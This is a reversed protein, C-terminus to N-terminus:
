LRIDPARRSEWSGQIHAFMERRAAPADGQGIADFIRQHASLTVQRADDPGVGHFRASESARNFLTRAISPALRDGSMAMVAAHFRQDAADFREHDDLADQMEDLVGRLEALQGATALAAADEAMTSELGARVRTLEDLIQLAGDHEILASLVVPDLLNWETPDTVRTGFGQAVTVLGKEDLRKMSERIITRSVGFQATLQAEPPLLDGPALAGTVIVDTLQKVVAVGLRAAPATVELTPLHSVLLGAPANESQNTM